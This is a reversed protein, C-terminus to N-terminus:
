EFQAMILCIILIVVFIGIGIFAAQMKRKHEIESKEIAQRHKLELSARKEEQKIQYSSKKDAKPIKADNDMKKEILKEVDADLSAEQDKLSFKLKMNDGEETLIFLAALNDRVARKTRIYRLNPPSPPIRVWSGSEHSGWKSHPGNHGSRYKEM